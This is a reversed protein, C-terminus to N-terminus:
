NFDTLNHIDVLVKDNYYENYRSKMVIKNKNFFYFSCYFEIDDKCKEKEIINNENLVVLNMKGMKPNCDQELTRIFSIDVSKEEEGNEYIIDFTNENIIKSIVGKFYKSKTKYRAIINCGKLLSGNNTKNNFIQDITKCASWNFENKVLDCVYRDICEKIFSNKKHKVYMFGNSIRGNENSKCLVLDTKENIGFSKFDTLCEQDIDIYIGGYEYLIILRGLDSIFRKDNIKNYINKYDSSLILNLIDKSDWTIIEINNNLNRIKNYNNKIGVPVLKKNESYDSAQVWIIHCLDISKINNIYKKNEINKRDKNKKILFIISIFIMLIKIQGNFRKQKKFLLLLVLLFIYKSVTNQYKKNNQNTSKSNKVLNKSKKLILQYEDVVIEYGNKLLYPVSYKSKGLNNRSFENSPNKVDDILIIGDDKLIDYEVILQAERKHLEATSEDMDGTDVYLLDVSKKKTKKIVNESYDCIYTINDNNETITKCIELHNFDLDVTTLKYKVIGELIDCFYKTFCGAGWDWKHPQYPEWYKVDNVLCGPYQASVFSRTTGLEIINVNKKKKLEEICYSFTHDRLAPIRGYTPIFKNKKLHYCNYQSEYLYNNYEKQLNMKGCYCDEYNLPRCSSCFYINLDYDKIKKNKIEQLFELYADIRNLYTHNDRVDKMIEKFFSNDKNKIYNDTEEIITRINNILLPKKNLLNYAEENNTVPIGGYSINKLLRCPIYGHKIQWKMQFSPSYLSESVIQQNKKFSLKSYHKYPINKKNCNEKFNNIEKENTIYKSKNDKWISGVFCGKKKFSNLDFKEINEDIEHPLLDTAWPLSLVISNEKYYHLKLNNFIKYGNEIVVNEFKQIQIVRHNRILQLYKKNNLIGNWCNHLIYYSNYNIPINRDVNGETFFLCNDFNINKIDDKDDLWLIDIKMHNFVKVWAGHIYSHTSTHLKHGWIIVRNLNLDKLKNKIRNEIEM